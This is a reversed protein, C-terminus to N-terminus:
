LDAWGIASHEAAVLLSIGIIMRGEDNSRTKGFCPILTGAELLAVEIACGM